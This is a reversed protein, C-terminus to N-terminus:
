NGKSFTSKLRQFYLVMKVYIWDYVKDISRFLAIRITQKIIITGIIMWFGTIFGMALGIYLWLIETWDGKGEEENAAPPNTENACNQLPPGCLGHNWNYASPDFSQLQTGSPIKGSLNNHSINLYGLFNLTSISSPITGFLKNESLDLSELQKMDGINEPIRGNFLNYSLKLFHLGHLKTLEDPLECSLKNNSLDISTVLSLLKSYEMQLGKASIWLAESYPFSDTKASWLGDSYFGLTLISLLPLWENHNTVVMAKFDGFSHPICGSLNNHALDLIQLSSLKSLQEPIIGKFLNSRLRLVMLSSLNEGIWTPISGSLKNEGVDLILLKSAKRLALPLEGSFSNNRLHLSRLNTLSVLGDPIKGTFNNTSLNIVELASASNWCGPLEGSMNNNSVDFLKLFTFNCFFSPISGTIHNDSLAFVQTYTVVAFYSPIPGSFSNNSLNIFILNTSLEPLPGEFRNSSLDVQNVPYNKLSTPLRGELNNNSLNLAYCFKLDWLWAPITGSLGTNSLCLESLNTQTRIWAPFVPGVRCSCMTITYCSFPPKWNESVNLQLSNYSLDLYALNVLNAFHSETLVGVLSNSSLNLEQLKFLQGTSVPVTNNLRNNGLRLRIQGDTSGSDSGNKNESCKSLRDVLDDIGGSIFNSTFDLIQLKCLNGMGKPLTGNIGNSQMSLHQLQSLNGFSEPLKGSIANGSLDLFKLHALNGITEPLKGSLNNGGSASFYQLLTLNGFSEPLVGSIMNYSLDFYALNTLNSLSEPISGSFDNGLLDLRELSGLNGLSEPMVGDFYNGSLSLVRLSSLNGITVPLKGYLSCESLNLHVLSTLNFLWQPLTINLYNWYLDLVRLSSLNLHHRLAIDHIGGVQPNTRKLKLVLLSPLMNIDHLWGHVNSLDVGSLDLHHLSTMGSLWHLDNAKLYPHAHPSSINLYRLRSLNGLTHPIIGSFQADYLNLYELNALSGIFDPIPSSNFNNMSLDLHRLHHLQTLSSSLKSAPQLFHYFPDFPDSPHQRLDLKNVHRSEHNCTVGQWKCCDQGNWSSFLSQNNSHNIGAKISLLAIRETEICSTIGHVYFVPPFTSVVFIAFLVLLLLRCAM